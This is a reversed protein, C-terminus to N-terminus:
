NPKSEPWVINANQRLGAIIVELEERSDVHYIGGKVEVTVYAPSGCGCPCAKMTGIELRPAGLNALMAKIHGMTVEPSKAPSTAVLVMPNKAIADLIQSVLADFTGAEAQPQDVAAKFTRGEPTEPKAM